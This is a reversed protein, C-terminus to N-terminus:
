VNEGFSFIEVPRRVSRAYSCFLDVCSFIVALSLAALIIVDPSEGNNPHKAADGLLALSTVTTAVSVTMDLVSQCKHQNPTKTANASRAHKRQNANQM